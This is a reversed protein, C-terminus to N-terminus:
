NDNLTDENYQSIIYKRFGYSRWPFMKIVKYTKGQFSIYNNKTQDIEISTFVSFSEKDTYDGLGQDILLKADVSQVIAQIQTTVPNGTVARGKLYSVSRTILSITGSFFADSVFESLM